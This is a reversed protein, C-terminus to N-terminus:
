HSHLWQYSYPKWFEKSHGKMLLSTCTLSRELSSLCSTPCTEIQLRSTTSYNFPIRIRTCYRVPPCLFSLCVAPCPLVCPVACPACCTCRCDSSLLSAAASKRLKLSNWYIGFEIESLQTKLGRNKLNGRGVVWLGLFLGGDMFNSSSYLIFNENPQTHVCGFLHVFM